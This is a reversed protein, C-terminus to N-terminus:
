ASQDGSEDEAPDETGEAEAFQSGMLDIECDELTHRLKRVIEQTANVRHLLIIPQSGSNEFTLIVEFSGPNEEIVKRFKLLQAKTAARIKILVTGDLGSDALAATEIVQLLPSVENVIMEAEREVGGPAERQSMFGKLVVVADRELLHRYKAYADKFVMCQAQGTFDELSLRAMKAGTKRSTLEQVSTLVGAIVIRADHGVEDLAGCAVTSNQRVAAEMGRLPHDSVYIGMTEKEMSLIESRSAVATEPLHPYHAEGTEVEPGGFLSDQGAEKDKIANDAFVLAAEMHELLTKRNPNISSLAGSKILADLAGRNMGFPRCREAFEYLHTFPGNEIREEIIKVVLSEGVGKIAALGFRVAKKKKVMEISFDLKSSNVDPSLVPIKTRRCEEIFNIVRDEKGRYCGLLAAMYEEPYNAKLYGTQYALIAYCVAHAKNFAYDCFPLLLDWVKQATEKSVGNAECGTFFEPMMKDMESKQKKGMARRLNDAKGLSFGALAQVLKLVQDQYVIVGFTEKLIPEMIEHLYEVQLLGFKSQIFKPIEGMPGPRYLAVMAALERVNAPKLDIINRRMGGSELQFVGVTEGRSLMEYTKTDDLKLNGIGGLVPHKLLMSGSPEEGPKIGLSERINDITRAVVTLNSLGLFDMKLLGLKELIKMEYATIAQGDSGKYLPVTDSLPDKSIVVGAAHVGCHRSLGEISQATEVLKKIQPDGQIMKRFDVSDELAKTITWKPGTPIMKAVKDAEAPAFGMVRAADRIAAKAGLTGFTVIQAVRDQGYKETVWRIVEDRRSDEFDMDIDPMSIREPNLFREFTLDYEVPNVDTIGVCYSVLSGAASGRVGFMIGQNRTFNAFERVLLFYSQFKTKEIVALEYNLREWAEDSANKMRDRLGKESLERLYELPEMGDPLDPIPMLNQEEAIKLDCMDAFRGTNEMAEPHEPFLRGMEDKSKIYFDPGSFRMRKEDSLLSGTGICLLVDHPEADKKCLYHNDNTVVLPLKLEKAIKLLGENMVKQEPIGHDQLEVFYSDPDFMEKYMGATYQAKEYDGALLYQNVESGICTTSAILGKSHKRLVEHDIRPSYYFGELAAISHLRCLNRYGEENKALLLLHYNDERGSKNLRGKSAVYAEMGIIPKVGQAKCEYYFEMAGFMVGHDTIAISPMGQDKALKVMYKIRTAGDLLSYETHNHLHVFNKCM